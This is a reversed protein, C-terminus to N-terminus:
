ARLREVARAVHAAVADVDAETTQIGLSLRLAGRARERPIGMAALVHSPEQAGSSCASGASVAVGAGDLLLLLQESEVRDITVHLNNPLREATTTVRVGSVDAVLRAQLRDRLAGVRASAQERDIQLLRAAEGFGVIGAVNYTGSRLGREQGGGHIQPEVSVGRARLLAGTGKPGGLKHAGLAVLDFRSAEVSVWPFAQVADTHFLAGAERAIQACEAVPQITGVENNAFMISVIATKANTAARLADLDVVGRADVPVKTLRFGNRGLWEATDLVAHHEIASVVIGDRGARKARFAAGTLALNDAETGGSTFVVDYPGRAGAAAAVYVRAEEIAM